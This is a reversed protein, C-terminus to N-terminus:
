AGAIRCSQKSELREWSLKGGFAREIEEKRKELWDFLRKNEPAKGAGRDIWLEVRGEQQKVTYVFPLGRVGSRLRGWM